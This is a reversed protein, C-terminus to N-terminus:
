CQCQNGKSQSENPTLRTTGRNHGAAPNGYANNGQGTGSPDESADSMKELIIDVM